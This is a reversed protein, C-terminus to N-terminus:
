AVAGTRLDPANVADGAGLRVVRLGARAAVKPPVARRLDILLPRKMRRSWSSPWRAYLPWDAQLIAGDAGELAEEVTESYTVSGDAGLDEKELVGRFNGLAAPDHCRVRAGASVLARVMPLARSDRVDDTGAKFALGLMALSRGRTGGVTRAVLDLAYALQEDNIRLASEGLRYPIGWDRCRTVIARLDKEFCSGGFGPGAHLFREGIRPDHGVAAMVEDVNVGLRDAVRSMENAFSVKAALFSNASYKVLEAGSPTFCFVPAGFRRYAQRLWRLARGDSTGLIIRHPHLADRVATGETLFEPNSAISLQHAGRGSTRRVIPAVVEEATGPLVTSKVVVVRWDTTSRLASGIQSASQKVMSLDIRGSALSPTPVSVFIGDAERVLDPYSDVVRLRRSRVQQKLLAPLDPERFSAIGRAVASRVESRVDYGFVTSGHAAFAVGTTLGVYGLGAIGIRVPPSRAVM